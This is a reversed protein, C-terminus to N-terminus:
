PREPGLIEQAHVAVLVPDQVLAYAVSAADSGAHWEIGDPNNQPRIRTPDDPLRLYGGATLDPELERWSLDDWDAFQSVAAEDVIDAGFHLDGVREKFAFFWGPDEENGRASAVTLDFGLFFIDPQAKASYLPYRTNAREEDDSGVPALIRPRDRFVRGAADRQWAARHAYVVANPYRKFLDGRILLVLQALDGASERANHTGLATTSVWTHIEPIDRLREVRAADTEGARVDDAANWFQRMYTGRRDTPYGRWLLERGLEHNLGVFYAEIFRQNTELLSITNPPIRHLNPLFLDSGLQELPEYMPQPFVPYAMVPVIRDPLRMRIRDPLVIASMVRARVTLRPDIGAMLRTNVHRLDAPPRPAPSTAKLAFVAHLDRAAEKFRVAEASDHGGTSFRTSEGSATMRFDPSVPLSDIAEPRFSEERLMERSRLGHDWRRMAIAGAALAAAISILVVTLVIGAALVAAVFFFVALLLVMWWQIARLLPALWAPGASGVEARADDLTIAGQPAQKAPAIYLSGDNLGPILRTAAHDAIGPLLRRVVPGRPRLIRRIEPSLVSLPLRSDRIKRYLTVPSATIRRLVPAIWLLREAEPLGALHKIFHSESASEAIQAQRLRRNAELVDGVQQWAQNMVAEQQQQVVRAGLGAAARWRPDLNLETLWKAQPDYPNPASDRDLSLRDRLTHWCGYIPPTVVPDGDAHADQYAAARNVLAAAARQFRDPYDGPWPTSRMGPARLAGEMGIVPPADLGRDLAPVGAGPTGVDMDRIGLEPDVPRPRLRRVLYEFDGREATRFYWRHYYPFDIQGDGWAFDLAGVEASLELGLGARRGTEFAPILFGHYGTNPQLRRPCMLRSHAVDPQQEMQRALAELSRASTRSVGTEDHTLDANVHVHAWAWLQDTPPFIEAAAARIRISPLGQPEAGISVFESEQLVVLAVWPTLRHRAREPPAPTYRWPFDEDYFEILALLNPEFDTSWDRPETRIIADKAVGIIDGPGVLQLTNRVSSPALDPNDTGVRLELEISARHSGAAPTVTMSNGLGQRLWPLFSYRAVDPPPM